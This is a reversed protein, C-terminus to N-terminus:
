GMAAVDGMKIRDKIWRKASTISQRYDDAAMSLSEPSTARDLDESSWDEQLRKALAFCTAKGVRFALTRRAAEVAIKRAEEADDAGALENALEDAMRDVVPYIGNVFLTQVDGYFKAARGKLGRDSIEQPDVLIKIDPARELARAVRSAMAGQPANRVRRKSARNETGKVPAQTGDMQPEDQESEIATREPEAEGSDNPNTWFTPSANTPAPKIVHTPVRLEDLLQQLESQLDNLDDANDPSEQRIIEKVWDPMQERVLYAFNDATLPSRDHRWLLADRYQSPYAGNDPLRIEVTLVKSGFPIGFSPAVSSWVKQTKFDYREGKYVLACFTTSGTAANARSSLSHGSSEHKPDHIYRIIVGTAEDVVDQWQGLRDLVDDLTKLPRFRGTENKGGGKTMAVDIKVDVGESFTVFRRFISTAIFSRDVEKGVGIPEAVTDHEPTEGFLVVETWDYGIDHGEAIAAATVDYITEYSGDPMRANFRVYTEEDPDWGITVENVEGNKCSRYRIGDPSAALGSVKAGIGFNGDLSMEKGISSSLNTADRLEAASMGIGTNFFTLKRVGNFTTPHIKVVRRDPPALATNEDANKFFERILTNIPAQQILRNILFKRDGIGLHEPGM